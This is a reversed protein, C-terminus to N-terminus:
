GLTDYRQGPVRDEPWPANVLDREHHRRGADQRTAHILQSPHWEMQPQGRRARMDSRADYDAEKRPADCPEGPEARCTSCRHAIAYVHPPPFAPDQPM